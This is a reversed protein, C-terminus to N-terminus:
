KHSCYHFLLRFAGSGLSLGNTNKRQIIIGRECRFLQMDVLFLHGLSIPLIKSSGYFVILKVSLPFISANSILTPSTALHLINFGIAM